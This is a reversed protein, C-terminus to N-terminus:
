DARSNNICIDGESPGHSHDMQLPGRQAFKTTPLLPLKKSPLAVVAMRSFARQGKQMYATGTGLTATKDFVLM